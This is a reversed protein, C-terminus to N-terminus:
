SLAQTTRSIDTHSTWLIHIFSQESKITVMLFLDTQPGIMTEQGQRQRLFGCVVDTNVDMLATM